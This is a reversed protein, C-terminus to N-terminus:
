FIEYRSSMEYCVSYLNCAVISLQILQAQIHPATKDTTNALLSTLIHLATDVVQKVSLRLDALPLVPPRPLINGTMQSFEDSDLDANDFYEFYNVPIYRIQSEPPGPPGPPIEPQNEDSSPSAEWQALNEGVQRPSSSFVDPFVSSRGARRRVKNQRYSCRRKKVATVALGPTGPYTPRSVPPLLPCAPSAGEEEEDEDEVVEDEEEEDQTQLISVLSLLVSPLEPQFTSSARVTRQLASLLLLGRGQTLYKVLLPPPTVTEGGGVCGCLATIDTIFLKSAVSFLASGSSLEPSQGSQDLEQSLNDSAIHALLWDTLVEWESSPRDQQELLSLVLVLSPSKVPLKVLTM